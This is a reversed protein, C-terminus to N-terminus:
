NNYNSNSTWVEKCANGLIHTPVLKGELSTKGRAKSVSFRQPRPVSVPSREGAKGGGGGGGSSSSSSPSSEVGKKVHPSGGLQQQHYSPANRKDGEPRGKGQAALVHHNADGRLSCPSMTDADKHWREESFDSTGEDDEEYEDYEFQRGPSGETSGDGSEPYTYSHSRQHQVHFGKASDAFPSHSGLQNAAISPSRAHGNQQRKPEHADNLGHGNAIFGNRGARVTLNHQPHHNSHITEGTHHDLRLKNRSVSHSTVHPPSLIPDLPPKGSTKPKALDEPALGFFAAQNGLPSHPHMPHDSLIYDSHSVSNQVQRVEELPQRRNSHGHGLGNAHSAKLRPKSDHNSEFNIKPRSERQIRELESDKKVLAEKLYTVQEKLERIDGSEKNSQAAGLEVLAVREAFKLTSITEGYSDADPNVHVFMLTKAHGGLSDQLLQTLKSNRYPVHASKQALAAIVDGLASLSKNIHQAEKLRDGTAESKDVRESGALDVLHLCGRLATGSALEKGKIHVTLVSHSRSSRDNLATAGVARNRHGMKMLDLVDETSQVSIMSADPVNLGNQQSNNRIKFTGCLFPYKKNSGDACLLDRVQENYIEIMQVGVDYHVLDNRYQALEFLDHLARFNVGWDKSSPNNPGTMTYTKGSGTQGYAFICVNFGDLVSRILPQTDLFVEEQSASPGFVKNFNFTKRHEKGQKTPSAITISGKEGIYDVSSQTVNQGPLFPRVRCYVRINGRLDQVQNYLERNEAAVKHYESAAQVLGQLKSNLNEMEEEWGIQADQCELRISEFALRLEQLEDRQIDLQEARHHDLSRLRQLERQLVVRKEDLSDRLSTNHDELGRSHSKKLQGSFRRDSEEIVRKLMFEVIVPVEAPQKDHLIMMVMRMLAECPVYTDVEKRKALYVEVFKQCVQHVWGANSDFNSWGNELEEHPFQGNDCVRNFGHKGHQSELEEYLDRFGDLAGTNTGQSNPKSTAQGLLGPTGSSSKTSSKFPFSTKSPGVIKWLGHGGAQQWEHYTKLSLICDVVKVPLGTPLAGEDLDSAEFSPLNLEEVAVLFNRVNEFYQYASLPAGEQSPLSFTPNEVIKSVAGPHIRNMVNCLVIGNRLCLRFEEETPQPSMDLPGVMKQLWSAAQFRRVAAENAKRSALNMDSFGLQQQQQQIMEGVAHSSAENVPSVQTRCFARNTSQTNISCDTAITTTACTQFKAM